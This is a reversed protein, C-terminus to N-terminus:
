YEGSRYWRVLQHEWPKACSSLLGEGALQVNETPQKQELVVLVSM